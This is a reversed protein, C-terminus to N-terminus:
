FRRSENGEAVWAIMSQFGNEICYALAQSFLLSGVGKRLMNPLLYIAYLEADFQSSPDRPKGVDAFGIVNNDQKAIWCRYHKRNEGLIKKWM